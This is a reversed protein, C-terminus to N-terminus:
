CRISSLGSVAFARMMESTPVLVLTGILAGVITGPGGVVLAALPFISFDLALLSIGVWGYLHSLYAGSFCGMMSSIFLALVKYRTINMGSARISQDNDKIGRFVLGLDENVLKRLGFTCILVLGLILYQNFWINTLLSLGTIGDTGGFIGMATIIRAAALPYIFSVVAFYIGRLPLCPMLALTSIIAGAVTAIPITVM